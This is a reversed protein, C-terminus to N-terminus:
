LRVMKQDQFHGFHICAAAQLVIESQLIWWISEAATSKAVCYTAVEGEFSDDAGALIHHWDHVARFMANEIFTLFPHSNNATSVILEGTQIYRYKADSLTMEGPIMKIKAPIAAWEGRIWDRFARVENVTLDVAPSNTYIRALSAIAPSKM